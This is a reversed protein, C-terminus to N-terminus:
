ERGNLNENLNEPDVLQLGVQLLVESRRHESRDQWSAYYFEAIAAGERGRKLSKKWQM